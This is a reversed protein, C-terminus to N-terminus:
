NQLSFPLKIYHTFTIQTNSHMFSTNQRTQKNIGAAADLTLLKCHTQLLHITISTARRHLWVATESHFKHM